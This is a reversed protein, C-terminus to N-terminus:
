TAHTNPPETLKLHAKRIGDRIKQIVDQEWRRQEAFRAHAARLSQWLPTQAVKKTNIGFLGAVADKTEAELRDPSLADLITRVMDQCGKLMGLQLATFDTLLRELNAAATAPPTSADGLLIPALRRADDVGHLPGPERRLIETMNVELQNGVETRVQATRWIYDLTSQLYATLGAGFQEVDAVTRFVADLDFRDALNELLLMAKTAVEPDLRQRETAGAGRKPTLSGLRSEVEDLGLLLQKAGDTRLRELLLTDLRGRREEDSCDVARAYCLLLDDLLPRNRAIPAIAMTRGMDSLDDFEIGYPGITILDGSRLLERADPQVREGNLYTGNRSGRDTLYCSGDVREIVAHVGSVHAQDLVVLNDKRRGITVQEQPYSRTVFPRSDMTIALRFGRESAPPEHTPQPSPRPGTSITDLQERDSQGRISDILESEAALRAAQCAAAIEAAREPRFLEARTRQRFGGVQELIGQLLAARNHGHSDGHGHAFSIGPIWTVLRFAFVLLEQWLSADLPARDGNRDQQRYFLADFAFTAGHDRLCNRVLREFGAEDLSGRTEAAIRRLSQEVADQVRFLDCGDNVLLMRFLLMGLGYLDSAPGFIKRFVCSAELRAAVPLQAVPHDKPLLTTAVINGPRVEVLELWCERAGNTPRAAIVDGPRFGRVDLAGVEARMGLRLADGEKERRDIQLSLRASLDDQESLRKFEFTTGRLETGPELLRLKPTIGDGTGLDQGCASGLDILRVRSHWRPPLTEGGPLLEAMANGPALGLHPRGCQEHIDRLGTCVDAFAALKLHLVEAWWRRPDAAFLWEPTSAPTAAGHAEMAVPPPAADSSRGPLSKGGLWDCHDDFQLDLLEIPLMSFDYYSVAYLAEEAPIPEEPAANAPFCTARHECGQCPLSGPPLKDAALSARYDRWLRTGIRVEVGARPSERAVGPVRYFVGPKRGAEAPAACLYRVLSRSFAPLGSTRLLDDDRCVTLPAGTEPCPPHFWAHTRRCYGIPPSQEAGLALALSRVINPSDVQRLDAAEHRWMAEIDLNTLLSHAEVAYDSRQLKVAFRRRVGIRDFECEALLILAFRGSHLVVFPDPHGPENRVLEISAGAGERGFVPRRPAPNARPSSSGDM